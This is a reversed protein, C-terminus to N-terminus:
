QKTLTETTTGHVAQLHTDDMLNFEWSETSDLETYHISFQYSTSTTNENITYASGSLSNMLSVSSEGIISLMDDETFQYGTALTANEAMWTGQIWTPPNLQNNTNQTDADDDDKNCAVLGLSLAFFLILIKKM